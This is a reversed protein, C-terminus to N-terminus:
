MVSRVIMGFGVAVFGLGVAESFRASTTLKEITMLVGLAAMWVVNMAGLAFMLLMIAWCCGLCLLGQRLGLRLVGGRETTWNSFFFPFPRQCVSLCAQKFASFQYLGAGLFITGGILRGVNGGDLLGARSLMWQLLAAALAFGFWAAVYGATLILPSVVPERKRAATDAIEAYTLIMPGATPLMMALTMAMWMPAAIALEGLGGAGGPMCVAPWNLPSGASMLGMALWGLVTLSAVCGLAIRKPQSLAGSLRTESASLHTLLHENAFDTVAFSLANGIRASVAARIM